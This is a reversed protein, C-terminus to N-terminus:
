GIGIMKRLIKSLEKARNLVMLHGGGNIKLDCKVFRIPLIHDNTGHIHLLNQVRTENNWKVIKDIAWKLFTLDMDLIIRRLLNADSNTRTGFFWNTIPNTRKLFKLPLLKHVGLKGVFRFYPPIESRNKASSIIIVKETEIQRAIEVAMMGGFSLGILIPNKSEIQALLRTAYHEMSEKEIPSIWQIYTVEYGSLDLRRFVREDVGLGSLLFVEKAM